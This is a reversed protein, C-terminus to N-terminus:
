ITVFLCSFRNTPLYTIFLSAMHKHCIFVYFPPHNKKRKAGTQLLYSQIYIKTPTKMRKNEGTNISNCCINTIQILQNSLYHEVPQEMKSADPRTKVSPCNQSKIEPVYHTDQHQAALNCYYGDNLHQMSLLSRQQLPCHISNIFQSSHGNFRVV